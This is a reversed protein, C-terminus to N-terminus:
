WINREAVLLLTSLHRGSCLTVRETAEVRRRLALVALTITIEVTLLTFLAAYYAVLFTQLRELNFAPVFPHWPLHRREAHVEHRMKLLRLAVVDWVNHLLANIGDVLRADTDLSDVSYGAHLRFHLFQALAELISIIMDIQGVCRWM